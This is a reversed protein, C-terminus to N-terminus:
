QEKYITRLARLLLDLEKSHMEYNQVNDSVFRMAREVDEKYSNSDNSYRMYFIVARMLKSIYYIHANKELYDALNMLILDATFDEKKDNTSTYFVSAEKKIAEVLTERIETSEM